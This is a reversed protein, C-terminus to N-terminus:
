VCSASSQSCLTIEFATSSGDCSITAAFCVDINGNFVTSYCNQKSNQIKTENNESHTPTCVQGGKM